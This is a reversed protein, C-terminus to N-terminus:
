RCQHFHGEHEDNDPHAVVQISQDRNREHPCRAPLSVQPLVVYGMGLDQDYALIRRTVALIDNSLM